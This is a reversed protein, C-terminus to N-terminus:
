RTKIVYLAHIIGPIFGLITLVINLLLTKSFGTELAVGIPPFLIALIVRVIDGGTSDATTNINNM